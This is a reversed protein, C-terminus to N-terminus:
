LCVFMVKDGARHDIEHQYSASLQLIQSEKERLADEFESMRLLIKSENELQLQFRNDYSTVKMAEIQAVKLDENLQINVLKFHDILSKLRIVDAELLAITRSTKAFVKAGNTSIEASQKEVLQLKQQLQYIEDYLVQKESSVISNIKIDVFVYQLYFHLNM